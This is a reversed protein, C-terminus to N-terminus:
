IDLYFFLLWGIVKPETDDYNSSTLLTGFILTPVYIAEDPHVEIPILEGDNLISITNSKRCLIDMHFFVASLIEIYYYIGCTQKTM